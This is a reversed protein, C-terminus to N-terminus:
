FLRANSELIQVVDPYGSIWRRMQMLFNQVSGSTNRTQLSRLNLISETVCCSHSIQFVLQSANKANRLFLEARAKVVDLMMARM